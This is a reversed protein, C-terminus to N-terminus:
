IMGARKRIYWELAFCFLAVGLLWPINWLAFETRTTVHRPEFSRAARLDKLFDGAAEPLYFRGGTRGSINRLLRSNMTLDSFEVSTEGIAFRGKDSGLQRANLVAKGAFGFDGEPLGTISGSYRGSGASTLILKRQEGGPTRVQVSVTANDIPTYAADYVQGIFRVKENLSYFKKNTKIQVLKNDNAVSLWRFSNKFIISFLDPSGAQGRSLDAAYGLLKWRYLGYALFAASKKNQFDRTLIMPEKLTVNNVKLGAVIRSEPKVKVFTETRFVPPLTNWKDIDEDSGDIRLLPSSMYDPRIDPSSLFEQRSSTITNFPLYPELAKLKRYDTQNSAIFLLPKGGALEAKINEIVSAPTFKNPFGILVFLEAKKFDGAEPITYFYSRSKQIFEKIEVGKDEKLVNKVFSVDASPAGAFLAIVRKNRLVNIFESRYNNKYTIEGELRGARITLKHMGEATPNYEFILSYEEKDPHISLMQESAVNGNDLLEIKLDDDYFGNIKIIVNVPVPIDIYAVENTIINQISVDKPETSDGIGITFIPRGFLDADYVPNPGSNFSGDTILLAARINEKEAIERIHAIPKSINTFQGDYLISDPNLEDEIKLKDDFYVVIVEDESLSQIGSNELAKEFLEKRSGRADEAAASMSNDVLIALKPSIESGSVITLIPEFLAFLLLAIGIARLMILMIRKRASVPPITRQYTYLALLIGVVVFLILWWVSGSLGLSYSNM